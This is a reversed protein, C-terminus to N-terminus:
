VVGIQAFVLECRARDERNTTIAVPQQGAEGALAKQFNKGFGLGLEEVLNDICLDGKDLVVLAAYKLYGMWRPLKVTRRSIKKMLDQLLGFPCIWGCTMRGLGAGVLGMFGIVFFPFMRMAVFNQLAGIPCSM